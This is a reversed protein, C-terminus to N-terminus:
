LELEDELYLQTLTLLASVPEMRLSTPRRRGVGGRSKRCERGRRREGRVAGGADLLVRAARLMAAGARRPAQAQAGRRRDQRAAAGTKRNPYSVPPSLCPPGTSPPLFLHILPMVTM